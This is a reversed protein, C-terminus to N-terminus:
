DAQPPAGGAALPPPGALGGLLLRLRERAAAPLVAAPAVARLAYRAIFRSQAEYRRCHPCLRLHAWLQLRTPLPLPADARREVLM